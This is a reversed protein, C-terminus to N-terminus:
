FKEQSVTSKWTNERAKLVGDTELLGGTVTGTFRDLVNNM